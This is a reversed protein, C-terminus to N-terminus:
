ADAEDSPRPPRPGRRFLGERAPANNKGLKARMEQPTLPVFSAEKENEPIVEYDEDHALLSLETQVVFLHIHRADVALEVVEGRAVASRPDVRVILDSSRISAGEEAKTDLRCCLHTEAGLKEVLEVKAEIVTDPSAALFNEEDHVDEPRIGLILPKDTDLYTDLSRIRMEVSRPLAIRKGEFTVCVRERIRALRAEFFNMPPTGILGAVFRDIPYDYLNQPTDAQQMFGERLVVVRTGMTMAEVQDNTVYLFTTGLRAHLKAIETRMQARLRGDLNSLPEDLLFVKPERVLARGLAVRQRQGASLTKPKRMLCDTLGLVAAAERVRRDIDQKSVKRLKLGFAMNDYVTLHPYLTFGQSLMAVDRDKTDVDNVKKGDIYLEGATIEELGAIMRLITSKGCGSSGVLVVFEGDRIDLSFDTVAAVGSPYVKSLGKLSLRAM